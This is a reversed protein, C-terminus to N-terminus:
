HFFTRLSFTNKCYVVCQFKGARLLPTCTTKWLIYGQLQCVARDFHPTIAFTSLIIKTPLNLRLTDTCEVDNVTYIKLRQQELEFHVRETM